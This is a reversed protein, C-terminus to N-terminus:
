AIRNCGKKRRYVDDLSIGSVTDIALFNGEINRLGHCIREDREPGRRGVEDQLRQHRAQMKPSKPSACNVADTVM